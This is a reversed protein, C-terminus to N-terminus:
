YEEDNSFCLIKGISKCNFTVTYYEGEALDEAEGQLDDIKVADQDSATEVIDQEQSETEKSFIEETSQEIGEDARVERGFFFICIAFSVLVVAMLAKVLKMMNSKKVLGRFM